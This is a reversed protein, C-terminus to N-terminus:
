HIGFSKIIANINEDSIDTLDEENYNTFLVTGVIPDHNLVFNITLNNLKGEENCIMMLDPSLTVSEIYGEVISQYAELTNEINVIEPSEFPRKVVVRM